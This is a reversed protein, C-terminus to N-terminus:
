EYAGSSPLLPFYAEFRRFRWDGDPSPQPHPGLAGGLLIALEHEGLWLASLRLLRLRVVVLALAEIVEAWVAAYLGDDSTYRRTGTGSTSLVEERIARLATAEQTLRDRRLDDAHDEYDAPTPYLHGAREHGVVTAYFDDREGSRHLGAALLWVVDLRADYWTAARYRGGHLAYCPRAVLDNILDGAEPAQGRAAEFKDLLTLADDPDIVALDEECRATIRAYAM